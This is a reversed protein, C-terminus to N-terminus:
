AIHDLYEPGGRRGLLVARSGAPELHWYKVAQKHPPHKVTSYYNTTSRVGQNMHFTKKSQPSVDTMNPGVSLLRSLLKRVKM